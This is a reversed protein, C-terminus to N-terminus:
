PRVEATIECLACLWMAHQEMYQLSTFEKESEPAFYGTGLNAVAIGRELFPDVGTGGRIPQIVSSIGARGSAAMAWDVLEPREALHPGMNIYQQKIEVKRNGAMKLVHGERAKLKEPDFDRLRIDLRFGDEAPVIRYPHSYGDFGYSDEAALTFGPASQLFEHVFRLADAAASNGPYSTAPLVSYSAGRAIHPSVVAEVAEKLAQADESSAAICHAIGDCDRLEDSEFGIWTVGKGKLSQLIEAAFRTAPRHGEVFATAGHTNVGGLRVEFIHGDVPAMRGKFFVSAHSANFNEINIEFPDLGDITYGSRVGKAALYDALGLLAEMRGIEEDPRAVLYLPPHPIEPHESLWWALTMLHTLGLKDDLGFPTKGSGFVLDHGKYIHLSPYNAISVQLEPNEPFPIADGNWATEINLKEIPQTGRATDLHVMMALPPATAGIGRGAFHAIVNAHDDQSVDAGLGEYFDVLYAALHKQGETSPISTSEEDSASDITVVSELHHLAREILNPQNNM